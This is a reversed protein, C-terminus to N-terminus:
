ARARSKARWKQSLRGPSSRCGAHARGFKRLEADTVDDLVAEKWKAAHDEIDIRLKGIRFLPVVRDGRFNPRALILGEVMQQGLVRLGCVGGIDGFLIEQRVAFASRHAM